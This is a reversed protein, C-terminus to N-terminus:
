RQSSKQVYFRARGDGLEAVARLTHGDEHLSRPVNKRPANGQLLVELVEGPQLTELRLKTRVYTMPCHEATIDLRYPACTPCDLRRAVKVERSTGLKLDVTRLTPEVKEGRLLAVALQAQLAGVLGAAPGLVGAEACTPADTPGDEFLCRLCAGGRLIPWVLGQFRLVGAHLLPVDRRVCVDSCLFKSEVDDTGDLVLDHAGVLAAANEPTLRAVEARVDLDPAVRQLRERAVVAKPQGLDADHFLLQRHLNTLSVVDDDLLTLDCLGSHALVWATPCGLGGVGVVLVRPRSM